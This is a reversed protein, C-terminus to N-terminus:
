SLAPLDISNLNSASFFAVKFILQMARAPPSLARKPRFLNVSYTPPLVRKSLTKPVNDDKTLSM